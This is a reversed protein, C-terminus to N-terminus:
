NPPLFLPFLQRSFWLFPASYAFQSLWYSQLFTRVKQILIPGLCIVHPQFTRWNMFHRYLQLSQSSPVLLNAIHRWHQVLNRGVQAQEATSPTYISGQSPFLIGTVANFRIKLRETSIGSARIEERWGGAM